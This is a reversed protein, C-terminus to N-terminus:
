RDIRDSCVGVREWLPLPPAGDDRQRARYLSLCVMVSINEVSPVQFQSIKPTIRIASSSKASERNCGDVLLVGLAALLFSLVRKSAFVQKM